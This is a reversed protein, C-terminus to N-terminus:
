NGIDSSKTTGRLNSFGDFSRDTRTNTKTTTKLNDLSSDLPNFGPVPEFRSNTTPPPSVKITIPTVPSRTPQRTPSETPSRTPQRTPSETPSRTPAMTPSVTPLPVPPAGMFPPDLEHFSDTTWVVVGQDEMILRCSDTIYLKKADTHQTGSSWIPQGIANNPIGEYIALNANAQLHLYYSTGSVNNQNSMSRWEVEWQNTVRNFTKMVLDGDNELTLACIKNNVFEIELSRGSPISDAAKTSPIMILHKAADSSYLGCCLVSMLLSLSLKM